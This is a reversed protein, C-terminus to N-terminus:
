RQRGCFNKRIVPQEFERSGSETWPSSSEKSAHLKIQYAFIPRFSCYLEASVTKFYYAKWRDENLAYLQTDVKQIWHNRQYSITFVFFERWYKLPASLLTCTPTCSCNNTSCQTWAKHSICLQNSWNEDFYCDNRERKSACNHTTVLICQNSEIQRKFGFTGVTTSKRQARVRCKPRQSM